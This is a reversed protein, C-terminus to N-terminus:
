QVNVRGRASYDSGSVQFYTIGNILLTKSGGPGIRVTDNSRDFTLTIRSDLQNRFGVSEGLPVTRSAPSVGVDTVNFYSYADQGTNHVTDSGASAYGDPVEEPSFVFVWALVSIMVLGTIIYFGKNGFRLSDVVTEILNNM